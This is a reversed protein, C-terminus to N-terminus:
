QEVADRLGADRRPVAEERRDCRAHEQLILQPKLKPTVLGREWVSPVGRKRGGGRGCVGPRRM